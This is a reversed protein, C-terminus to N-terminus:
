QNPLTVYHSNQPENNVLIELTWKRELRSGSACGQRMVSVTHPMLAVLLSM